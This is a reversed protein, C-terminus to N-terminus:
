AWPHAAPGPGLRRVLLALRARARARTASGPACLDILREWAQWDEAGDARDVWSELVLRDRSTLVGARLDAVLAERVQEVGPAQSRPLVPGPYALLAGLVDSAALRERVLEVDTAIGAVRYPRSGAVLPGVARRLRSVEARVTVDSLPGPHLLAGLEDAHLGAPSGVLLLLLEAHRPSLPRPPAGDPSILLADGPGLVRLLAPGSPGIRAAPAPGASSRDPAAPVRAPAGSARALDAPAVAPAAPGRHVPRRHPAPVTRARLDLEVATATARVLALMLPSAAADGGTVDLVGVVRGTPDRLLSATCSWPQVARAFHEAGHVQVDQGTALATGPANTGAHAEGWDAGEVFGVRDVARRVRADGGIWLLRGTADTLAVLFGEAVADDLLLTRVVPLTSWLPHDRRYSRLDAAGIGVTPRPRDPDAGLRLSRRWSDVVVGRVATSVAGTSLFREHAARVRALVTGPDGGRPWAM